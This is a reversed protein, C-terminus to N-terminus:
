GFQTKEGYALDLILSSDLPLTDVHVHVTRDLWGSFYMGCYSSSRYLSLSPQSLPM